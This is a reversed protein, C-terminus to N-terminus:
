ACSQCNCKGCNGGTYRDKPDVLSESDQESTPDSPDSFLLLLLNRHVVKMDDGETSQINFIPLKGLPHEVVEYITSEWRDQIKHKGKFAICKILAKDGVELKTCQVKYYAAGLTEFSM